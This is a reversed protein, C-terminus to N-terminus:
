KLDFTVIDQERLSHSQLGLLWDSGIRTLGVFRIPRNFVRIPSKTLGLSRKWDFQYGMKSRGIPNTVLESTWYLSRNSRSKKAWDLQGISIKHTIKVCMEGSGNEFLMMAGDGVCLIRPLCLVVLWPM